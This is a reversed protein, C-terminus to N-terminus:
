VTVRLGKEPPVGGAGGREPLMHAGEGRVGDAGGRDRAQSHM